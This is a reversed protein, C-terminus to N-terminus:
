LAQGLAVGSSDAPKLPAQPLAQLAAALVEYSHLRAEHSFINSVAMIEDVQTQDIFEQLEQQLTAPGGVFSYALM